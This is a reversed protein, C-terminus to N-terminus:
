EVRYEGSRERVRAYHMGGVQRVRGKLELLSLASSITAVPLALRAHLEDIHLSGQDLETLIRREHEDEPLAEAAVEHQRIVDLNLAELLDEVKLLPHAGTQILRNTGKSARSNIEGPVAFVERGQDLAFDATILAGSSSGAEVVVTILALGSIIRNRAPFNRGEPRTGLPYESIVAGQQAIQVALKRHEPPYVRNLGSGMVAITRGGGGLAARHAVGDIGRALGSIVTVSQAALRHAIEECVLRGYPTAQRTGVLAVAWRDEPVLEGHVYLLPPPANIEMLRIPYDDDAWTLVRYGAVEIRAQERELDLKSRVSIFSDVARKNIGAAAVEGAHAHWAVELDGFHEILARTGASGIGPVLNFGIWFRKQDGM